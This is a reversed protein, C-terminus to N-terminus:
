HGMLYKLKASMEPDDEMVFGAVIQKLLVDLPVRRKLIEFRFEHEDTKPWIRLVMESRQALHTSAFPVCEPPQPRERRAVVDGNPLIYIVTPWTPDPEPDPDTSAFVRRPPGSISDVWMEDSM